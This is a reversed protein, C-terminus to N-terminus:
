RKQLLWMVSGTEKNKQKTLRRCSKLLLLLAQARIGFGLGDRLEVETVSDVEEGLKGNVLHNIKAVAENLSAHSFQTRLYQPVAEYEELGVAEMKTFLCATSAVPAPAPAPAPAPEETMTIPPEPEVSPEHNPEPKEELVKLSQASFSPPEIEEMAAVSVSLSCSMSTPAVPAVADPAEEVAMAEVTSALPIPVEPTPPAPRVPKSSPTATFAVPSPAVAEVQQSRSVSMSAMQPMAPSPPEVGSARSKAASPQIGLAPEEAEGELVEDCRLDVAGPTMSSVSVGNVMVESM